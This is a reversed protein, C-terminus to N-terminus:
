AASSFIRPLAIHHLTGEVEHLKPWHFKVNIDILAYWLIDFYRLLTTQLVVDQKDTIQKNQKHDRRTVSAIRWLCRTRTLLRDSYICRHLTTWLSQFWINIMGVALLSVVSCWLIELDEVSHTLFFSSWKWKLM